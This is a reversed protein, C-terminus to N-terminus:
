DGQRAVPSAVVPGLGEVPGAAEGNQEEYKPPANEEYLPLQEVDDPGTRNMNALAIATPAGVRARAAHKRRIRLSIWIVFFIVVVPVLIFCLWRSDSESSRHSNKISSPYPYSSPTYSPSIYSPDWGWSRTFELDVWEWTSINLAYIDSSVTEPYYVGFTVFMLDGVLISRHNFLIGKNGPGVGKTPIVTWNWTNCNLVAVKDGSNIYTQGSSTSIGGYVIISKNSTAVVSHQAFRASPVQGTTNKIVWVQKVTDFVYVVDVSSTNDNVTNGGILVASHNSILTFTYGSGVPPVVITTNPMTYDYSRWTINGTDFNYLVPQNEASAWVSGEKDFFGVSLGSVATQTDAYVLKTWAHTSPRYCWVEPGDTQNVFGTDFFCIQDRKPGGVGAVHGYGPMPMVPNIKSDSYLPILSLSGGPNSVNIRYFDGLFNGVSDLGGYFYISRLFLLFYCLTLIGASAARRSIHICGIGLFM